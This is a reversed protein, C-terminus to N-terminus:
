TLIDGERAGRHLVVFAQFEQAVGHQFEEGAFVQQQVVGFPAFALEGFAARADYVRVRELISRSSQLKALMQPQPAAFLFGSAAVFRSQERVGEFGDDGRHIEVASEMRNAIQEGAGHKFLHELIAIANGLGVAFARQLFEQLGLAILRRFVTESPFGAGVVLLHKADLDPDLAFEHGTGLAGGFFIRLLLGCAAREVFQYGGFGLMPFLNSRIGSSNTAGSDTALTGSAGGAGCAASGACSFEVVSDSYRSDSRTVTM